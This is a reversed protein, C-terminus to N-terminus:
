GPFCYMPLEFITCLKVKACYYSLLKNLHITAVQINIPFFLM